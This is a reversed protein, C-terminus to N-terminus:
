RSSGKDVIVLPATSVGTNGNIVEVATVGLVKSGSPIDASFKSPGSYVLPIPDGGSVAAVVSFNGAPWFVNDITCGCMMNVMAVLPTTETYSAVTVLLGPVVLIISCSGTLDQGPVICRRESVTTGNSTTASVTVLTPAALALTANFSAADNTRAPTGWPLPQGMILGTVGSGDQGAPYGMNATGSVPSPGGTITVTAFGVKRGLFKGGLALVYVSVNTSITPM